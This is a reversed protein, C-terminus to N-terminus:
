LLMSYCHKSTHSLLILTKIVKYSSLINYYQTKFDYHFHSTHTHLNYGSPETASPMASLTPIMQRKRDVGLRNIPRSTLSKEIDPIYPETHSRARGGRHHVPSCTSFIFTTTEKYQKCQESGDDVGEEIWVSSCM